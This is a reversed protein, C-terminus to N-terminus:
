QHGDILFSIVSYTFPYLVHWAVLGRVVCGFGGKYGIVGSGPAAGKLVIAMLKMM